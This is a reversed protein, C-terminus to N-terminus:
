SGRALERTALKEFAQVVDGPGWDGSAFWEIAQLLDAYFSQYSAAAAEVHELWRGLRELADAAAALSAREAVTVPRHQNTEQDWVTMYYAVRSADERCRKAMALVTHSRGILTEAAYLYDFSGGSM